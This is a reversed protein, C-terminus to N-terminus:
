EKGEERPCLLQGAFRLHHHRLMETARFSTGVLYGTLRDEPILPSQEPTLIVVTHGTHM